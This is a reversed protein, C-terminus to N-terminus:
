ATFHRTIRTETLLPKLSMRRSALLAGQQWDQNLDEAIIIRGYTDFASLFRNIAADCYHVGDTEPLYITTTNNSPYFPVLENSAVNFRQQTLRVYHLLWPFSLLLPESRMFDFRQLLLIASKVRRGLYDLLLKQVQLRAISAVPHPHLFVHGSWESALSSKHDEAPVWRLAEVRNQCHQTSCPDLDIIRLTKRVAAVYDPPPILVDATPGTQVPLSLQRRRNGSAAPSTRVSAESM